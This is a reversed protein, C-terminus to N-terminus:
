PLSYTGLAVNLEIKSAPEEIVRKCNTAPSRFAFGYRGSFNVVRLETIRDTKDLELCVAVVMYMFQNMLMQRDKTQVTVVGKINTVRTVDWSINLRKQLKSATDAFLPQTLLLIPLLAAAIRNM